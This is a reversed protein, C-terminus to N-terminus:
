HGHAEGQNTMKAMIFFAGKVVIKVNSPIDELLTIETYGIDTVGKKVLIKKFTLADGEEADSPSATEHSEHTHGEHSEHTHGEHSEHTHGEHSEHTHGEHTNNESVIFIYDLGRYNVIAENPVADLVAADLSILATVNMGDILGQKDGEVNAHVAIAKTNPEFTNSIAFIKADYEKGPNNTLTFHIIQGDRLKGIDKEYVFLDLHLRSNDIVEAVPNNVDVYSGINVSIHSLAGSIPSVVSVISQINEHSLTKANIGILELQKQLSVSQALLAKMEAEAQQMIKLANADGQQLESQRKYEIRALDLKSAISLYEEQMAILPVSAITAIIQGKAVASGAQVSISKVIGSIPSTINAKNQNPAKLIGNAKISAALQKKELKGFGIGISKMQRATLTAASLDESGGGHTHGPVSSKGSCAAFAIAATVIFFVGLFIKMNETKKNMNM